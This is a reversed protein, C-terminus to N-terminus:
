DAYHPVSCRRLPLAQWDASVRTEVDVVATAKRVALAIADGPFCPRFPTEHAVLIVYNYLFVHFGRTALCVPALIM